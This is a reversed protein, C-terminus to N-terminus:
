HPLIITLLGIIANLMAEETIFPMAEMIKRLFPETAASVSQDDFINVLIILADGTLEKLDISIIYDVMAGPFYMNAMLQPMGVKSVHQNLM